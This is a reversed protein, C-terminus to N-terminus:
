FNHELFLREQPSAPGIEEELSRLVDSSGGVNGINIKVDAIKGDVDAESMSSKRRLSSAVSPFTIWSPARLEFRQDENESVSRNSSMQSSKRHLRNSGLVVESPLIPQDICPSGMLVALSRELSTTVKDMSPRDKGRMRVCKCAVNAIRKLAEIDSPQKLCPDLISAIDGSKILPVSWQVINGEEYQMDIAKRGSLIELLLVGFSYVDSKTTLYHLRYYEPDLYGLTGAPLEALPSSSDTPGLLSLGFDSVRANHEEDILINSSKIDRHIV